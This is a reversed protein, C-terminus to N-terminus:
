PCIWSSGLYAADVNTWIKYKECVELLENCYDSAGNFTSGHTIGYFFPILGSKM